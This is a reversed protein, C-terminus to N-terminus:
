NRYTSNVFRHFAATMRDVCVDSDKALYVPRKRMEGRKAKTYDRIEKNLSALLATLRAKKQKDTMPNNM